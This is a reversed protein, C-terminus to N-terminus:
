GLREKRSKNAAAIIEPPLQLFGKSTDESVVFDNRWKSPQRNKLWFICSTPDPPFRETYEHEFTQGGNQFIKVARHEYGIARHYLQKAVEADAVLKGSKLSESFEPHKRKWLHISSEAVGFFDALQQDTAGLICLKEAQQCYEPLFSTPRGKKRRQRKM